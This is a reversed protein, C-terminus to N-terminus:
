GPLRRCACPGRAAASASADGHPRLRLLRRVLEVRARGVRDFVTVWAAREPVALWRVSHGTLRAMFLVLLVAYSANALTAGLAVGLVGLQWVHLLLLSYGIKMAGGLLQLATDWAPKALTGQLFSEYWSVGARILVGPVLVFFIPVAGLFDVGYLIRVFPWAAAGILLSGLIASVASLQNVRRTLELGREADAGTIGRYSAVGLARPFFWAMEMLAYGVSYPGLEATGLSAGVILLDVRVFLFRGVEGIWLPMGLRFTGRALGWDLSPREPLLSLLWRLAMLAQLLNVFILVAVARVLTLEGFAALLGLLVLSLVSAVIAALNMWGLRAVGQLLGRLVHSLGGVFTLVALLILPTQGSYSALREGPAAGDEGAVSLMNELWPAGITLMGLTVLVALGMGILFLLTFTGTAAALTCREKGLVIHSARVLGLGGFQLLMQFLTRIATLAGKGAPGLAHSVISGVFTASVLAVSQAVATSVTGRRVSDGEPLAHGSSSAAVGAESSSM